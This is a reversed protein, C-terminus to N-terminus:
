KRKVSEVNQIMYQEPPKLLMGLFSITMIKLRLSLPGVLVQHGSEQIEHTTHGTKMM